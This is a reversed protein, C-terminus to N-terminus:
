SEKERMEARDRDVLVQANKAPMRATDGAPYPGYVKLDTGLFRPIEATTKVKKYTVDETEEEASESETETGEDKEGKQEKKDEAEQEAALEKESEKQETTKLERDKERDEEKEEESSEVKQENEEQNKDTAIEEEKKKKKQENDESKHVSDEIRQRHQEVSDRVQKFLEEEQPHVNNINIDSKASITALKILKNERADLLDEFLKVANKSEVKALKEDLQKKRKLYSGVREFFNEGLKQLKDSKKAKKTTTRLEEFTLM